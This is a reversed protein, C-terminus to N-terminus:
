RAVVEPLKDLAERTMLMRSNRIVDYANLSAVPTVSLREINRASKWLTEDRDGLALLCSRGALELADLIKSMRGTKPETFKLEDVIKVEQDRFKALLASRLAERRMSKTMDKKFNQESKPGFIVGGGRLLPSRVSGMRARGTHKQRFPKRGGGARDARTKSSSSGRRKHSGYAVAVQHLLRKKVKDGLVTEDFEVSGVAEGEANVVQLEV